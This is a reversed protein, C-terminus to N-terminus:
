SAESLPPRPPRAAIVGAEEVTRLTLFYAFLMSPWLQLLLRNMSRINTALLPAPATLLVTAYGALMLVLVIAAIRAGLRWPGAPARGACLFYGLLLPGLIGMATIELFAHAAGGLVQLYRSGELLREGMRRFGQDAMLDNPPALSIKFWVIMALVPALGIAFARADNLGTHWGRTRVIALGYGVIVVPLLLMGENKTWASLGLTLGVLVLLSARDEPWTETLALLALTALLFYGFPVDAYQSTGHLIFFKTGLLLLVALTGQTRSRLISVSSYLLGATAFTFLMAVSVPALPTEQGLYTWMRAVSGPVLLPYDPHSWGPLSTLVERWHDGGRVIARAHMNWTMWADWGGQPSVASHAGFAITAGVVGLWLALSLLPHNTTTSAPDRRVPDPTRSRHRSRAYRAVGALLILLGLECLAFVASTGGGLALWAFFVLSSLGLGIGVGLFGVLTRAQSMGAPWACVITLLGILAAAALSAALALTM